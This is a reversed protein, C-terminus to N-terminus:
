RGQLIADYIESHRQIMREATMGRAIISPPGKRSFTDRLADDNMLRELAAALADIDDPPVLIGNDEHAIIEDNGSIRSGICACGSFMAEQLALPLGEFLSPQVFIAASLMFEFADPRPGPLAVRDELGDRRIIERVRDLCEPEVADGLMLLKWGPHRPAVRAFAEALIHQGKRFAFHGVSLINNQRPAGPIAAADERLRSHYIQVFRNRRPWYRRRLRGCAQRSVVIERSVAALSNMKGAWALPLMALKFLFPKQPGCYGDLPGNVLHATTCCAVGLRGLHPMPSHNAFRNGWGFAGGLHFHALQVGADSLHRALAASTERSVSEPRWPVHLRVLSGAPSSKVTSSEDPSVLVFDYQPALGELLTEVLVSVGGRLAIPYELCLAITKRGTM